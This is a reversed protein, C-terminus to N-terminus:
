EKEEVSHKFGHCFSEIYLYKIVYLEEETKGLANLLGEIFEWHEEALKKIDDNEM